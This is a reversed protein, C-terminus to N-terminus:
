EKAYCPDDEKEDIPMEQKPSLWLRKIRPIEIGLDNCFLVVPIKRV